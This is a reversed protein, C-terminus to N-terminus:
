EIGIPVLTHWMIVGHFRINYVIYSVVAVVVILVTTITKCPDHREPFSWM